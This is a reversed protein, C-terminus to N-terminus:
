QQPTFIQSSEQFESSCDEGQDNSGKMMGKCHLATEDGTYATVRNAKHFRSVDATMVNTSSTRGKCILYMLFIGLVKTSKIQIHDTNRTTDDFYNFLYM